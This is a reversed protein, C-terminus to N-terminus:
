MGPFLSRAIGNTRFPWPMNVLLIILAIIYFTLARKHKRQDSLITKKRTGYAITILIIAIIMGTIHEVAWYRYVSNSMVESGHQQFLQFGSNDRTFYQILGILLMVHSSIMLWKGLSVDKRGFLERQATIHRFINWLLLILIVWRLFNHLHLLGQEM